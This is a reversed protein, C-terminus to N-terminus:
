KGSRGRRVREFVLVLGTTVVSLSAILAIFIVDM